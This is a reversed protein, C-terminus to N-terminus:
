RSPGREPPRKGPPTPSRSLSGCIASWNKKVAGMLKSARDANNNTIQLMTKHDVRDIAQKARDTLHKRVLEVDPRDLLVLIKALDRLDKDGKDSGMRDAAAEGKLVLLHELAAVRIGGIVQSRAAIDAYPVVLRSQNEVYVDFELNQKLIQFKSLRRNPVAEYIDRLDVFDTQSIYFDGDHTHEGAVIRRENAHMAVAIGGIFVVGEPFGDTLERAIGILAHYDEINKRRM